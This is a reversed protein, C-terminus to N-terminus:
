QLPPRFGTTFNDDSTDPIDLRPATLNLTAPDTHECQQRSQKKATKKKKKYSLVFFPGSSSDLDKAREKVMKLFSVSPSYRHSFFLFALLLFSSCSCVSLSCSLNLSPFFFVAGDQSRCYIVNIHSLLPM